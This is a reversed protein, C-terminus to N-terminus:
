IVTMILFCESHTVPPNLTLMIRLKIRAEIQTKSQQFLLPCIDFAIALKFISSAQTLYICVSFSATNTTM